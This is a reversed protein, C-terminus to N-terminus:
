NDVRIGNFTLIYNVADIVDQESCNLCGGNKPMYGFEGPFGNIVNAYIKKLSKKNSINTWKEKDHLMISGGTGYLHCTACSGSFIRKGNNAIENTSDKNSENIKLKIDKEQNNLECSLFIILYFLFIKKIM